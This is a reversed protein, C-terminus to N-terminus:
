CKYAWEVFFHSLVPWGSFVPFKHTCLRGASCFHQPMCQDQNPSVTGPYWIQHVPFSAPKTELSTHRPRGRRSLGEESAGALAKRSPEGLAKVLNRAQM